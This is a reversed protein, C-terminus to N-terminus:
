TRNGKEARGRPQIELVKRAQQMKMTEPIM